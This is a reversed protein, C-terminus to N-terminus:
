STSKMSTLYAPPCYVAKAYEKEQKFGTQQEMDQELEQKSVQM